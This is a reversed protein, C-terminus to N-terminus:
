ADRRFDVGAVACMPCYGVLGTGVMGVGAVIAVISSWGTLYIFGAAIAAVGVALRAIQQANGINKRYFAM